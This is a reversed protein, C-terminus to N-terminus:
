VTQSNKNKKLAAIFPKAEKTLLCIQDEPRIPVKDKEKGLCRKEQSTVEREIKGDVGWM